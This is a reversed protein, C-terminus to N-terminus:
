LVGARRRGITEPDVFSLVDIPREHAKMTAEFIQGGPDDFMDTTDIDKVVGLALVFSGWFNPCHSWNGPQEFDLRPLCRAAWCSIPDLDAIVTHETEGYGQFYIAVRTRTHISALFLFFRYGIFMGDTGSVWNHYEGERQNGEQWPNFKGLETCRINAVCSSPLQTALDLINPPVRVLSHPLKSSAM